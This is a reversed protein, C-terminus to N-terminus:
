DQAGRAVQYLYNRQFPNFDTGAVVRHHLAGTRVDGAVWAGM